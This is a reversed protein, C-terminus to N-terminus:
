NGADLVRRIIEAMKKIELPKLALERIGIAKIDKESIKKSFGTCLIIPLDPKIALLEKSFQVGTKYPMTQDTIVLDFTGTNAKFVELAEDASTMATVEYGLRELVAQGM